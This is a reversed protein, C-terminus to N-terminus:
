EGKLICDIQLKTKNNIVKLKEFTIVCDCGEIEFGILSLNTIKGDIFIHRISKINNKNFHKIFDNGSITYEIPIDINEEKYVRIEIKDDKTHEFHLSGITHFINNDIHNKLVGAFRKRLRIVQNKRKALEREFQDIEKKRENIVINVFNECNGELSFMTITGNENFFKDLNEKKYCHKTNSATTEIFIKNKEIVEKEERLIKDNIATFIYLKM